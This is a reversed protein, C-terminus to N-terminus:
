AFAVGIIVPALSTIKMRATRADLLVASIIITFVPTVARVVQHLQLSM